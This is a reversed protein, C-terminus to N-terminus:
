VENLKDADFEIILARALAWNPDILAINGIKKETLALPIETCGLIIAEAGQQILADAAQNLKEVALPSITPSTTKIGYAPDYISAHVLSEQLNEPMRIATLGAKETFKEYLQFTYTGSTSLIGIKTLNPYHEKIYKITADVIHVLKVQYGSASLKEKIVSYIQPVHATNCAIAAVSVGIKAMDQIVNFLEGAPNEKVRGLLYETRDSIKNPYSLLTVPLHDQESIIRTQTLIKSMLDIGAYPGVGGIIGISKENYTNADMKSEKKM